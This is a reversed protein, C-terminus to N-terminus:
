LAPSVAEAAMRAMIGSVRWTNQPGIATLMMPPSTTAVSSVQRNKGASYAAQYRTFSSEIKRGHHFKLVYRASFATFVPMQMSRIM